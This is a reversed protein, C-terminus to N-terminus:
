RLVAGTVAGSLAGIILGIRRVNRTRGERPNMQVGKAVAVGILGGMLAGGVVPHAQAWRRIAGFDIENTRAGERILDARTTM